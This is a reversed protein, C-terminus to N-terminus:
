PKSGPSRTDRDARGADVNGRRLKPDIPVARAIGHACDTCVTAEDVVHTAPAHSPDCWCPPLEPKLTENM